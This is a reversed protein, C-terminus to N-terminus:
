EGQGLRSRLYAVAAQKAIEASPMAQLAKTVWPRGPLYVPKAYPNGYPQIYGGEHTLAAYPSSYNISISGDPMLTITLSRMLAGTEVAGVSKISSDLYARVADALARAVAQEMGRHISDFDANIQTPELEIQPAVPLAGPLGVFGNFEVEITDEKTLKADVSEIERFLDDFNHTVGVKAM